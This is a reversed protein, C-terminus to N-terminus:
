YIIESNKDCIKKIQDKYYTNNGKSKKYAEKALFCAKERNGKRFYGEALTDLLYSPPDDIIEAAKKALNVGKNANQINKNKSTIYIWALNNLTEPLNENLDLAKEFAKIAKEEKEQEMMLNGLYNYLEFNDPNKQLESIIIKEAKNKIFGAKYLNIKTGGYFILAITLFYVLLLYNVKKDHKKAQTNDMQCKFLFEIRQRISYHHWNPEEESGPSMRSIKKFTSVLPFSSGSIIFSYGDAQREFNRMFFGFVYRFYLVFASIFIIATFLSVFSQPLMSNTFTKPTLFLFLITAPELFAHLCVIFGAFILLYLFIHNKKIHGFEHAIVAEKEDPSLYDCFAQTVLIYRFNKFLGVVGATIMKGQFIPWILAEKYKVGTKKSLNNLIKITEEDELKTCKWFKKLLIPIFVSILLILSIGYVVQGLFSDYFITKNKFPLFEFIDFVVSIIFWPFITPLSFGLQTFIFEKKSIENTNYEPNNSHSREWILIMFGTFISIMILPAITEFQSTIINKTFIRPIEFIYLNIGFIIIALISLNKSYVKFLDLEKNRSAKKFLLDCIFYFLIFSLILIGFSFKLSFNNSLSDTYFISLILASIFYIINEFM